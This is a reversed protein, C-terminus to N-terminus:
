LLIHIIRYYCITRSFYYALLDISVMFSVLNRSISNQLNRAQAEQAQALDAINRGLAAIMQEPTLADTNVM